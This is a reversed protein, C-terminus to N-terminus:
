VETRNCAAQTNPASPTKLLNLIQSPGNTNHAVDQAMSTFRGDIERMLGVNERVVAHTKAHKNECM